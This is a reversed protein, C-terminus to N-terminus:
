RGRVTVWAHLGDRFRSAEAFAKGVATEPLLSVKVAKTRTLAGSRVFAAETLVDRVPEGSDAARVRVARRLVWERGATKADAM